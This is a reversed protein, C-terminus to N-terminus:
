STEPRSTSLATGDVAAQCLSWIAVTVPASLGFSRLHPPKNVALPWVDVYSNLETTLHVLLLEGADTGFRIFQELTSPAM